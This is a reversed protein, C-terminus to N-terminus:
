NVDSGYYHKGVDSEINEVEWKSGYLIDTRYYDRVNYGKQTDLKGNIYIDFTGMNNNSDTASYGLNPYKYKTGSEDSADVSAKWLYEGNIDLTVLKRFAWFETVKHDTVNYTLSTQVTGDRRSSTVTDNYEVRPTYKWTVQSGYFYDGSVETIPTFTADADGLGDANQYYVIVQQQYKKREIYVYNNNAKTVKYYVSNGKFEQNETYSWSYYQGYVVQKSDALKWDNPYNGNTDQYKVYTRQLFTNPLKYHSTGSLNGSNDIAAVHLYLQDKFRNADITVLGYDTFSSNVVTVQTSTNGDIIYYYGRLGSMLTTTITNSTSITTNSDPVYSVAKFYSITGNDKSSVPITYSTESVFEGNPGITPVDPAQTDMVTIGITDNGANYSTTQALSIKAYGTDNRGGSKAIASETILKSNVYSSGAGGGGGSGAHWSGYKTNGGRGGQGFTGASGGEACNDSGNGEARGSAGGGGGYYGGGGGGGAGSYYTGDSSMSHSWGVTGGAGGASQSAGGGPRGLLCERGDDITGIVGSDGTTGSTGGNGGHMVASNYENVNGAGGAGGGGGAVAVIDSKRNSYSSLWGGTNTLTMSTAGGGRGGSNKYRGNHRNTTDTDGGGNHGQNSGVQFYVTQGANLQIKGTVKAGNGGVDGYANGGKAGALEVSYIGNVPATFSHIGGTSFAATKSGNSNVQKSGGIHYWTTNDASQYVAIEKARTDLQSYQLYLYGDSKLRSDDKTLILPANYSAELIMTENTYTYTTVKTGDLTYWGNFTYGPNMTPTPLTVTAGWSNTYAISGTKNDLTAYPGVNLVLTGTVSGIYKISVKGNGVYDESNKTTGNYLSPSMYGSGGGGGLKRNSSAAGGYYGGGGAGGPLSRNNDQGIGYQSSITPKDGGGIAGGEVTSASGGQIGGGSGALNTFSSNLNVSSRGGGGGAVAILSAKNISKLEGSANLALHTAGGGSGGNTGYASGGGNFTRGGGITGQQGVGIYVLDGAALNVYGTTVGGFGGRYSSDIGGGSAGYLEVYYQGSYPVSFTQIGGTYNFNWSTEAADATISQWSIGSTLLAIALLSIVFKQIYRQKNYGKRINKM